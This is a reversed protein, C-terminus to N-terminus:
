TAESELWRLIDMTPFCDNGIKRCRSCASFDELLYSLEEISMSKIKEYNTMSKQKKTHAYTNDYQRAKHEVSPRWNDCKYNTPAHGAIYCFNSDVCDRCSAM